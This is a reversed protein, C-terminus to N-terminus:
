FNVIKLAKFENPPFVGMYKIVELPSLGLDVLARFVIANGFGRTVSSKDNVVWSNTFTVMDGSYYNSYIHKDTVAFVYQVPISEGNGRLVGLLKDKFGTYVGDCGFAIMKVKNEEGLSSDYGVKDPTIYVEGIEESPIHGVLDYRLHGNTFILQNKSLFLM